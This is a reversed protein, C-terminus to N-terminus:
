SVTHYVSQSFMKILAGFGPIAKNKKVDSTVFPVKFLLAHMDSIWIVFQRQTSYIINHVTILQLLRISHPIASFTTLKVMIRM